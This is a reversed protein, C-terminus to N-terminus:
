SFRRRVLLYFQQVLEKSDDWGLKLKLERDMWFAAEEYVSFNNITKLSREYMAEDNRFLESMFVFRDNIGIAKKLDKIPTSTLKHAVETTATKLRDNLSADSRGIVDNIEKSSTQQALTPVESAIIQHAFNAPMPDKVVPATEPMKKEAAAPPTKINNSAPLVVAVKATGMRNGAAATVLQLESQLLQVTMLLAAADAGQATQEQLKTILAKVREM